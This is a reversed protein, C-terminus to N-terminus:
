AYRLCDVTIKPHHSAQKFGNTVVDLATSNNVGLATAILAAVSYGSGPVRNAIAKTLADDVVSSPINSSTIAAGISSASQLISSGNMSHNGGYFAYPLDASLQLLEVIQGVDGAYHDYSDGPCAQFELM